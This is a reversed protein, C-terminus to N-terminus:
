PALEIRISRFCFYLLVVFEFEFGFPRQVINAAGDADARALEANDALARKDGLASM